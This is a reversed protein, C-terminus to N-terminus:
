LAHDPLVYLFHRLRAKKPVAVPFEAEVDKAEYRLNPLKAGM